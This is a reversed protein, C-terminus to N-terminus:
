NKEEKEKEYTEEDITKTKTVEKSYEYELEVATVNMLGSNDISVGVRLKIEKPQKDTMIKNYQEELGELV